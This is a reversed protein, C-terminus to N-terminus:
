ARRRRRPRAVAPLAMTALLSLLAASPEPVAGWSPEFPFPFNSKWQRYDIFDVKKDGNLDGQARAEAAKQFNDRIANFDTMDVDGDLDVDGPQAAITLVVGYMNRGGNDPQLLSFTGAPYSKFYVSYWQDIDNDASEDIAVEDPVAPNNTRNLGNSTAVWAEDLIWQMNAAGFTPPDVNNGDSLRNDILMYVNAPSSITVDLKYSANDRNDNGAMIYDGGVLYAPVPTNVTLDGSYRHNRDVFAPALHGFTGVTYMEGVVAGTFPENAVSVTWSHGTWQAVITDTAENDGGTEVVNTVIAAAPAVSLTWLALTALCLRLGNM